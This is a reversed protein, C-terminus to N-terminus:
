VNYTKIKFSFKIEFNADFFLFFNLERMQLYTHNSVLVLIKMKKLTEKM